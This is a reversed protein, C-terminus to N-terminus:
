QAKRWYRGEKPIGDDSLERYKFTITDGVKFHKGDFTVESEPNLRAHTTHEQSAFEREDMTMGTGIEFRVGKYECVIAGIKGLVNGQKGERGTVFGVVTAEDDIFPKYKLLTTVRKPTWTSDPARLMIGEGKMDLVRSLFSEAARYASVGDSPLQLHRELYVHDNQTDLSDSLFALEGAFTTGQFHHFDADFRAKAHHLLWDAFSPAIEKVMNANKILGPKFLDVVRPSSFVAFSIKHWEGEDPVDRSVISRCLQFNGRGAWLEGDLPCCPLANLFWDPAMIPNGYRSWLGTAVPHIKDKPKGTKPHTINAWPVVRTDMGRTVGGDWMARTGDLKESIYWGAPNHKDPNYVKALQLFERRM